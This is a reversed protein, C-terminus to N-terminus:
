PRCSWPSASSSSTRGAAASNPQVVPDDVQGIGRRRPDVHGVLARGEDLDPHDRRAAVAHARGRAPEGVDVDLGASKGTFVVSEPERGPDGRSETGTRGRQPNEKLLFAGLGLGARGRPGERSNPGLDAALLQGNRALPPFVGPIACSAYLADVLLGERFVVMEGSTLDLAVAAFPLALDEIRTDEGVLRALPDRSSLAAALDPSDPFLSATHGDAGMGLVVEDFHRPVPGPPILPILRAVAAAGQLLERRIMGENRDAHDPPVDREDSALVDIRNWALPKDRLLRFMPAPTTGGSVVLTATGRAALAAGLGAHLAGALAEAASARDEFRRIRPTM